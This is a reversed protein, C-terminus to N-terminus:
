SHEAIKFGIREFDIGATNEDYCYGELCKAYGDELWLVFGMGHKLGDITVEPGGLHGRGSVSPSGRKVEFHTYFGAGTNERSSFAASALQVDLAARDALHMECIAVFVAKELRTFNSGTPMEFM